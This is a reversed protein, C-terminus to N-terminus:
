RELSIVNFGMAAMGRFWEDATLGAGKEVRSVWRSKEGMAGALDAQSWGMAKRRAIWMELASCGGGPGSRGEVGDEWVVVEVGRIAKGHWM